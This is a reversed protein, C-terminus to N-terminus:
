AACLTFGDEGGGTVALGAATLVEGTAGAKDMEHVLIDTGNVAYGTEDVTATAKVAAVAVQFAKEIDIKSMNAKRENNRAWM